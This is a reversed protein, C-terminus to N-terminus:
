RGRAGGRGRPSSCLGSELSRRFDLRSPRRIVHLSIRVALLDLCKFQSLHFLFFTSLSTNARHKPKCFLGEEPALFFLSYLYLIVTVYVPKSICCSLIHYALFFQLKYVPFVVAVLRQSNGSRLYVQILLVNSPFFYIRFSQDKRCNFFRLCLLRFVYLLFIYSM